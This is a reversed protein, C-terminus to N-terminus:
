VSEEDIPQVSDVMYTGCRPCYKYHGTSYESHLDAHIKLGCNYCYYEDYPVNYNYGNTPTVHKSLWLTRVKNM